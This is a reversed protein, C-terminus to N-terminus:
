KRAKATTRKPKADFLKLVQERLYRQVFSNVTGDPYLIRNAILPKIRKEIDYSSLVSKVSLEDFSFATNEWLWDWVESEIDTNLPTIENLISIKTNQWAIVIRTRPENDTIFLVVEPKENEKFWNLKEYYLDKEM